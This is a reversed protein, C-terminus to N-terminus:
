RDKKEVERGTEGRKCAYLIGIYNRKASLMNTCGDTEREGETALLYM